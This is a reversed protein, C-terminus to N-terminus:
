PSQQSQNPLVSRRLVIYQRMKPMRLDAGGCAGNSRMAATPKGMSLWALLRLCCHMSVVVLTALHAVPEYSRVRRLRAHRATCRLATCRAVTAIAACESSLM